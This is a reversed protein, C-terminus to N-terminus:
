WSLGLNAELGDSQPLDHRLAAGLGLIIGDEASVVLDLGLRAELAWGFGSPFSWGPLLRAEIRLRHIGFALGAELSPGAGLRVDAQGNSWGGAEFTLGVVLYDSLALGGETDAALTLGLGGRVRLAFDLDERPRSSSEIAFHYGLRSGLWGLETEPGLGWTATDLLTMREEELTLSRGDTSLTTESGLIVTRGSRRMVVQRPESLREDLVALRLTLLARAETAGTSGGLPNSVLVGGRLERHRSGSGPIPTDRPPDLFREDSRIPLRARLDLAADLASSTAAPDVKGLRVDLAWTEIDILADVYAALREAAAPGPGHDGRIAQEVARLAASRAEPSATRQAHLDALGPIDARALAPYLADLRQEAVAARTYRSPLIARPRARGATLLLSMVEHPHTLLNARPPLEPLVSTMLDYALSACNVSLFAYPIAAEQRRQAFVEGLLYRVELPDLRLDYLVLDRAEDIGYRRYVEGMTETRISATLGGTLGKLLYYSTTKPDDIAAYAFVPEFSQGTVRVDGRHRVRFIVHGMSASPDSWSPTVYIVEVGDVRALDAWREFAKCRGAEFPLPGPPTLAHRALFRARLPFDCSFHRPDLWALAVSAAFDVAPDFRGRPTPYRAPSTDPATTDFTFLTDGPEPWHMIARWAPSASLHERADLRHALTAMWRLKAERDPEPPLPPVPRLVAALPPTLAHELRPTHAPEPESAHSALAVTTLTAALAVALPRM